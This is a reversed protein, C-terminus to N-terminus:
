AGVAGVRAEAQIAVSLGRALALRVAQVRAVVEPTLTCYPCPYPCCYPLPPTYLLSVPLPLLLSSPPAQVRAAELDDRAARDSRFSCEADQLAQM